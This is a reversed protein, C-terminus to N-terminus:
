IIKLKKMVQELKAKVFNQDKIKLGYYIPISFASNSYIDSM